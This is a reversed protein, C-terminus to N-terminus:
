LFINKKGPFQDRVTKRENLEKSRKKIESIESPSLHKLDKIYKKKNASLQDKKIYSYNLLSVEPRRPITMKDIVYRYYQRLNEAQKIKRVIKEELSLSARTEKLQKYQIYENELSEKVRQSFGAKVLHNSILQAITSNLQKKTVENYKMKIAKTGDPLIVGTEHPTGFLYQLAASSNKIECNGQTHQARAIHKTYYSKEAFSDLKKFPAYYMVPDDTVFLNIEEATFHIRGIRLVNALKIINERTDQIEYTYNICLEASDENEWGNRPFEKLQAEKEHMDPGIGAKDITEVFFKAEKKRIIVTCGHSGVKNDKYPFNFGIPVILFSDPNDPILESLFDGALETCASSCISKQLSEQIQETNRGAFLEPHIEAAKSYITLYELIADVSFGFRSLIDNSKLNLHQLYIDYLEVAYKPDKIYDERMKNVMAIREERDKENLFTM